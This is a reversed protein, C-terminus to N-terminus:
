VWWGEHPDLIQSLLLLRGWDKQEDQVKGLHTWALM